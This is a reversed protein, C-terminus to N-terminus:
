GVEDLDNPGEGLFEAFGAFSRRALERGSLSPTPQLFADALDPVVTHAAVGTGQNAPRAWGCSDLVSPTMYTAATDELLSEGTRQRGTRLEGTRGETIFSPVLLTSAYEPLSVSTGIDESGAGTANSYTVAACATQPQLPISAETTM